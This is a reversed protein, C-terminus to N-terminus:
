SRLEALLGRGAGPGHPLPQQVSHRGPQASGTRENLVEWAGAAATSKSEGVWVNVVVIVLVRTKQGNWENQPCRARSFEVEPSRTVRGRVSRRM